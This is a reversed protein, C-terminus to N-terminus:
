VIIPGNNMSKKQVNVSFHLFRFPTNIENRAISHPLWSNIFVMTGATPSFNVTDSAHTIANVDTEPLSFYQKSQRPDHILLKPANAHSDLFYFGSIQMRSHTHQEHGSFKYHEQAWLEPLTTEYEDMKFGQSNLIHWATTKIFSTLNTLLIEDAMNGSQYSPNAEDLQTTKKVDAIYETALIKASDLFEPKVISYVPTHFYQLEYLEHEVPENTM